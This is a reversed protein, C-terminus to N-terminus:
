NQLDARAKEIAADFRPKQLAGPYIEGNIIFAPTGRLGLQQAFQYTEDLHKQISPQRAKGAIQDANVGIKRAVQRLVVENLAGRNRMLAQHFVIYKDNDPMAAAWTAALRSQDNLIPFEKFVVRVDPNEEVITMLLPFVRKCYGCNYDFYEVVTIPAKPDGISFDAKNRYFLDPNDTILATRAREEEAAMERQMNELFEALKLPNDRFYAEIIQEVEARKAADIGGAIPRGALLMSAGLTILLLVLGASVWFFINSKLTEFDFKTTTEGPM